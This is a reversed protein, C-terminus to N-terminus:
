SFRSGMFLFILLMSDATIGKSANQPMEATVEHEEREDDPLPSSSTVSLM